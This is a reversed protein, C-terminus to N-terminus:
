MLINENIIKILKNAQSQWSYYTDVYKMGDVAKKLREKENLLYYDIKDLCEKYNDFTVIHGAFEESLGRTNYAICLAGSTMIQYMRNSWTKETNYHNVAIGIKARRYINGSTPSVGGGWGSGFCHLGRDKRLKNVISTRIGSLPFIHESNQGTFVLDLDRINDSLLAIPNHGMM